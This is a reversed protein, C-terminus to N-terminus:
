VGHRALGCPPLIFWFKEVLWRSGQGARSERQLHHLLMPLADRGGVSPNSHQQTLGESSRSVLGQQLLWFCPSRSSLAGSRRSIRVEEGTRLRQTRIDSQNLKWPWMHMAKSSSPLFM